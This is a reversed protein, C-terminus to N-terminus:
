EDGISGNDGSLLAAEKAAKVEALAKKRKGLKGARKDANYQAAHTDLAVTLFRLIKEDRRLALEMRDIIEGNEGSFEVSYYYGSNKKKIPYALQRLGLEDIHVITYKAEFVTNVYKQATAAIEDGPLTPDVIFTVEYHRM